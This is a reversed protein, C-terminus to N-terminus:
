SAQEPDSATSQTTGIRSWESSWSSTRSAFRARQAIEAEHPFETAAAHPHHVFRLLERELRRTAKFISGNTAQDVRLLQLSELVLGAGGCRQLWGLM